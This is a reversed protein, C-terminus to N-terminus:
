EEAHISQLKHLFRVNLPRPEMHVLSCRIRQRGGCSDGVFSPHLAVSVTFVMSPLARGNEFKRGGPSLVLHDSGSGPLYACLTQMELKSGWVAAGNTLVLKDGEHFVADTQDFELRYGRM